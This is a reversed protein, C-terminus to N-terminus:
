SAGGGPELERVAREATIRRRNLMLMFGGLVAWTIGLALWIYYWESM